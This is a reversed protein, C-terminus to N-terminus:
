SARGLPLLLLEVLGLPPAKPSEPLGFERDSQAATCLTGFLRDWASTLTGYNSDTTARLPHHHIRHMAPPVLVKWLARDWRAPVSVNSHQFQSALLM